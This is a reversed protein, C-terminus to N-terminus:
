KKGSEAAESEREVIIEIARATNVGELREIEAIREKDNPDTTTLLYFYRDMVLRAPVKEENPTMIFIESFEPKVTRITKLVNKEHESLDFVDSKILMNISTNTQQLFFKWPSNNIITVGARSLKGEGANYIDDFGQTAIIMSANEKRFRRYAQEIFDDMRPNKGIFKHAEDIIMQARKGQKGYIRNGIHYLLIMIIPDRIGEENEVKQMEAVIFEAHLDVENEGCFFAEYIGGKCYAGLQDAFDKFRADEQKRFFDRINTVELKTGFQDYLDLIADHLKTKILKEVQDSVTTSKSAGLIYIFTSLYELDDRLKEKTKIETFPNMCQPNEKDPEIYQGGVVECQKKFSGGIDMVFVMNDRAYSLFALMNLFVSKGSGSGAIVYGNFSGNSVFVDLGALQARRAFLLLNPNVGKWDAELPLYQTLQESFLKYSKATIDFYEDSQGLPMSGFFALQHVGDAPSLRISTYDGGKNWYSEITEANSQMEDFTDGSVCVNMDMLFLEENNAFRDIITGSEEKRKWFERFSEGWHQANIVEHNKQVRNQKRKDLRRVNLTVFFSNMFQNSDLAAGITDGMKAGFESIHASPSLKQPCLVKWYRNDAIIHTDYFEVKTDMALMQANLERSEEYPLIDLANKQQVQFHNGNWIEWVVSKLGNADLYQPYFRNTNLLDYVLTKGQAVKVPDEGKVTIFLRFSKLSSMMTPSVGEFHKARYFDAMNRIATKLADSAPDGNLARKNHEAAWYGILDENNRSGFMIIQLDLSKDLKELMEQFTISTQSSMSLRPACEIIAGVEGLTTHYLQNEDDYTHYPLYKSLSNKAFTSRWINTTLSTTKPRFFSM